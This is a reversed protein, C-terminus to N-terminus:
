YLRKGLLRLGNSVVLLSAGTDAAVAMWLTAVGLLALVLFLLKIGLAFSVNQKIIRLTNRSHAILWPVRAIEDSMLTVDAAEIAVDTGIGGMAIGFTAAAMAPADNVGDGVMAVKGHERVLSKVLAVKDEPLLEAHWEDVGTAQAISRATGENDGTLMVVKEVGLAKLEAVVQAADERVGDALSILGCVHDDSGVAVVTHGADELDLAAQHATEDEKGKEHMLNHSGVWYNRGGLVGEAGKGSIARFGEARQVVMGQGAAKRLIAQALPHVSDAEVGAARGLLEDPTHSDLPVVRQVEPRGYTLTGTKDLALAKLSGAAELYMGGKILVGNRAARTMASVISVPTSIVLACPCGIVLLVLGRYFWETWSAGAVLPPLVAVAFAFALMAPTYYRAFTDVWQESPARRGRSEQVLHIIRALTTDDAKRNVEFELTGDENVTGAYVQDGPGKPVPVSEGTIPAQNVNSSGTLVQGDLAIREGPRAIVVAGMPVDGVPVEVAEGGGIPLMRAVPPSLNLLASIARRARQVSWHELLLALAFLFSVTAAEMWQGLALAGLVAIVMLLNMDPRLGAAARVARPYVYWGGAVVSALYLLVVPLPFVHAGAHVGALADMLSRHLAWHAVCGALLLGGSACTMVARGHREWLSGEEPRAIREWPVATMGARQVAAIIADPSSEREDFTVVMRAQVVDFELAIVGPVPQLASRLASVEEACDLERVKYVRKQAM